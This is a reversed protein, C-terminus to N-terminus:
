KEKLCQKIKNKLPTVVYYGINGFNKQPGIAHNMATFFGFSYLLSFLITGCILFAFKTFFVVTALFLFLGSGITTIAGSVISIGIGSLADQMRRFRDEFVSEVYHNALHVAYDVSFGILIVIAISELSGLTWGLIEM